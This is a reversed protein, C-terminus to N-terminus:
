SGEGGKRDIRIEFRVGKGARDMLTEGSIGIDEITQRDLERMQETSVVKM